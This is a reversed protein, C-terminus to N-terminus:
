ARLTNCHKASHLLANCYKAASLIRELAEVYNFILAQAWMILSSCALRHLANIYMLYTDFIYM